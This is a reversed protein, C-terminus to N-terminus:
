QIFIMGGFFMGNMSEIQKIIQPSSNNERNYMTINIWEVRGAGLKKFHDVYFTAGYYPDESAATIIGIYAKEPTKASMSIITFYIKNDDELAGGILVLKKPSSASNHM